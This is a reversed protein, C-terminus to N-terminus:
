EARRLRTLLAEIDSLESAVDVQWHDLQATPTVPFELAYVGNLATLLREVRTLVSITDSAVAQLHNREKVVAAYHPPNPAPMPWYAPGNFRYPTGGWQHNTDM